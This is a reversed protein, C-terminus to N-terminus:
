ETGQERIADLSRGVGEIIGSRRESGLIHPGSEPMGREVAAYDKERQEAAAERRVREDHEALWESNLIADALFGTDIHDPDTLWDDIIDGLAERDTNQESM